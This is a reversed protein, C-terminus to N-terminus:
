GFLPALERQASIVRLVLATGGDVRYAILLCREFSLTRLGPALDDRPTSRDPFDALAAIRPEIRDIYEDAIAPTAEAAIWRHLAVLDSIALESLRVQHSM